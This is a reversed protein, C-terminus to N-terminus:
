FLGTRQNTMPTTSSCSGPTRTHLESRDNTAHRQALRHWRQFAPTEEDYVPHDTLQKAKGSHADVSWLHWREHALYGVGDLKYFLRDYQRVVVGLKKKQEDKERELTEADLKRVTCLLQKGDPSWSLDDIEGDIQSLRKAEGGSFPILYIQAPNEKDGRDSLFAIQNGDPSWRGSGDHQDGTTFQHPEGNGTPAVWLNSYKKETKRDVRQVTYVVNKGDPSIRVESVVNLQYLDEAYITRLKRIAM